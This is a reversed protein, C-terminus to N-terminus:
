ACTITIPATGTASSAVGAARLTTGFARDHALDILLVSFTGTTVCHMRFTTTQGVYSPQSTALCGGGLVTDGANIPTAAPLIANTCLDLGTASTNEVVSGDFALSAAPYEIEWQYGNYADAAATVNIGVSFQASGTVVRSADVVAPSSADADLAM